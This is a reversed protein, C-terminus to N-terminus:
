GLFQLTTESSAIMRRLSIIANRQHGHFIKLTHYFAETNEMHVDPHKEMTKRTHEMSMLSQRLMGGEKAYLGAFEHFTAQQREDLPTKTQAKKEMATQVEHVKRSKERLLIKINRNNEGISGLLTKVFDNM